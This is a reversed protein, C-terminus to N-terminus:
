LKMMSLSLALILTTIWHVFSSKPAVPNDEVGYEPMKCGLLKLKVTQIFAALSVQTGSYLSNRTALQLWGSQWGLQERGSDHIV